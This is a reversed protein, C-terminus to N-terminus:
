GVFIQVKGADIVMAVQPAAHGLSDVALSFGGRLEGGDDLFHVLRPIIDKGGSKFWFEEFFYFWAYDM